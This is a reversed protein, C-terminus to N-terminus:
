DINWDMASISSYMGPSCTQTDFPFDLLDFTCAVKVVGKGSYNVYGDAYLFVAPEEMSAGGVSNYIVFDPIWILSPSVVLEANDLTKSTNWNLLEDRWYMDIFISLTVYGDVTNVSILDHFTVLLESEITDYLDGEVPPDLKNYPLLVPINQRNYERNVNIHDSVFNQMYNLCDSPSKGDCQMDLSFEESTSQSQSQISSERLERRKSIRKPVNNVCLVSVVSFTLFLFSSILFM